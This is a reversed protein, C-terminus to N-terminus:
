VNWPGPWSPPLGTELCAETASRRRCAEPVLRGERFDRSHFGLQECPAVGFCGMSPRRIWGTSIVSPLICPVLVIGMGAEDSMRPSSLTEVSRPIQAMVKGIPVDLEQSPFVELDLNLTVPDLQPFYFRSQSLM